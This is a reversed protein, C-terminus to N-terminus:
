DKDHGKGQHGKAKGPNAKPGKGQGPGHKGEVHLPRSWRQYTPAFGAKLRHFEDSGPKIGMRQALVGWGEGHDRQWEEAVYRCSRGLVQGIACAYYVDGPAWRQKVLLDSVYDRPAGYYRVMEDVFSDRYRDGYQNVDALTQDVWIDGTRPNWGFEFDQAFAGHSGVALAAALLCAKTKVYM